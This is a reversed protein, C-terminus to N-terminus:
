PQPFHKDIYKELSQSIKQEVGYMLIAGNDFFGIRPMRERRKKSTRTYREKTGDAAWMAIPKYRAKGDKGGHRTLYQGQKGMYQNGAKATVFGGQLDKNARGRISRKRFAAADVNLRPHNIAQDAVKRAVRRMESKIANKMARYLQKPELQEVRRELATMERTIGYEIM